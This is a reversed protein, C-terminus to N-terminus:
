AERDKPMIKRRKAGLKCCCFCFLFISVFFLVLYLIGVYSPIPTIRTVFTFIGKVSFTGMIITLPLGLWWKSIKKFAVAFLLIGEVLFCLVFIISCINNLSLIMVERQFVTECINKGNEDTWCLAQALIPFFLSFFFISIAINKKM